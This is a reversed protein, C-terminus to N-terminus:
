MCCLHVVHTPKLLHISTVCLSQRVSDSGHAPRLRFRIVGGGRWLCVSSPTQKLSTVAFLSTFNVRPSHHFRKGGGTRVLARTRREVSLSQGAAVVSMFMM